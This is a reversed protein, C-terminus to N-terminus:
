TYFHNYQYLPLIVQKCIIKQVHMAVAHPQIGANEKLSSELFDLEYPPVHTATM